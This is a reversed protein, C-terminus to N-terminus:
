PGCGEFEVSAVDVGQEDLAQRVRDLDRPGPPYHGSCASFLVPRGRHVVLEGACAVGGGAVFSSHHLRGVIQRPGAYLNGDGDMVYIGRGPRAWHARGRETDFPRLDRVRLLLGDRVFLRHAEREADDMYWVVSDPFPRSM